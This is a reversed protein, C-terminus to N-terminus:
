EDEWDLIGSNKWTGEFGHKFALQHGYAIADKEDDFFKHSALDYEDIEYDVAHAVALKKRLSGAAYCIIYKMM